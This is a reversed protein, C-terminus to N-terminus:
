VLEKLDQLNVHYWRGDNIEVDFLPMYDRIFDSDSIGFKYCLYSLTNEYRDYEDGRLEDAETDLAMVVAKARTVGVVLTEFTKVLNEFESLNRAYLRNEEDVASSCARCISDFEADQEAESMADFRAWYDSKPRFGYADKHMDSLAACMNQNESESRM